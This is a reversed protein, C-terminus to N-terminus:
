DAAGIVPPPSGAVLASFQSVHAQDAGCRGSLGSSQPKTTLRDQARQGQARYKDDLVLALPGPVWVFPDPVVQLTDFELVDTARIQRM